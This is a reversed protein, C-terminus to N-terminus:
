KLPSGGHWGHIGGASGDIGTCEAAHQHVFVHEDQRRFYLLVIRLLPAVLVLTDLIGDATQRFQLRSADVGNEVGGGNTEPAVNRADLANGFPDIEIDDHGGSEVCEELERVVVGVAGHPVALVGHRSMEHAVDLLPNGVGADTGRHDFAGRVFGTQRRVHLAGQAGAGPRMPLGARGDGRVGVRFQAASEILLADKALFAHVQRTHNYAVAAIGIVQVIQLFQEIGAADDAHVPEADVAQQGGLLAHRHYRLEAALPVGPLHHEAM